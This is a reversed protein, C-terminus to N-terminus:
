KGFADQLQNEAIIGLGKIINSATVLNINGTLSLLVTESSKDNVLMLLENVYQQDSLSDVFIKIIKSNIQEEMIEELNNIKIHKHFDTIM